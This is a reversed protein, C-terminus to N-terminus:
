AARERAEMWKFSVAWVWPNADWSSGRNTNISDWLGRFLARASRPGFGEAIADAESIEQVRQVRVDVIELTIRSAWRPMHISPKWRFDDVEADEHDARYVISEDGDQYKIGCVEGFSAPQYWFTERVWLRDGPKGYPCHAPFSRDNWCGSGSRSRLVWGSDPVGTSYHGIGLGSLSLTIGPERPKWKVIRRTQTKRRELIARVMPGSFLIPYEKM